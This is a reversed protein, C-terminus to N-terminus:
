EELLDRFGLYGQAGLRQILARAEASSSRNALAGTLITRAAENRRLLRPREVQEANLWSRLVEFTGVPHDKSLEVLCEMVEFYPTATGALEILRELCTLTWKPDFRGSAIWWGLSRLHGMRERGRAELLALLEETLSRYRELADRPLEIEEQCLERGIRGIAGQVDQPKAKEFFLRLLADEDSWSLIARGALILLHEGLRREPHGRTTASRGGNGPLRHVAAAYEDRLLEFPTNYVRCSRLYTEWAADRLEPFRDSFIREVNRRTWHADLLTLHPFWQGYVARVSPSAELGPDLHHELRARVEPIRNLDFAAS